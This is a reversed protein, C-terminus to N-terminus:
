FGAAKYLQYWDERSLIVDAARCTDVLHDKNTTGVIPQISAPHRLIWSIALASKSVRYKECFNELQQNLPMFKEHNLFAGEFMNYQLPSWAQMTM